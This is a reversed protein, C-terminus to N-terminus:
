LKKIILKELQSSSKLYIANKQLLYEFLDKKLKYDLRLNEEDRKLGRSTFYMKKFKAITQGKNYDILYKGLYNSLKDITFDNIDLILDHSIFGHGWIQELEEKSMTFIKENFFLIHYHIVGDRNKNQLEKVGIYKVKEGLIYELRRKFNNWLIQSDNYDKIEDMYTFTTLTTHNNLNNFVLSFLNRRARRLSEIYKDEKDTYNNNGFGFLDNWIRYEFYTGKDILQISGNKFTTINQLIKNNDQNLQYEEPKISQILNTLNDKM